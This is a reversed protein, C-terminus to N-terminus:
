KEYGWREFEFEGQNELNWNAPNNHIYLRIRNLDEDSCIIHEYYNRQWIPTGQTGRNQNIRRSVASKFSGVVAGLSGPKPGNPREPLPSAHRAGVM